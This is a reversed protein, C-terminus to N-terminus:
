KKETGGAQPLSFTVKGADDLFEIKPVGAADVSLKM